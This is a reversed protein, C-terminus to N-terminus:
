QCAECDPDDISCANIFESAPQESVQQTEPESESIIEETTAKMVQSAGLTRLYYTTKLGYEWAMMYIDNLVKGSTTQIFVNTSASQDIWKSRLASAKIIWTSDIEFVEKYQSQLHEPIDPILHISGNNQKIQNLM